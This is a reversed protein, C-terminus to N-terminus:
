PVQVEAAGSGRRLEKAFAEVLAKKEAASRPIDYSMLPLDALRPLGEPPPLDGRAPRRGFRGSLVRAVDASLVFDIFRRAADGRRTGRILGVGDPVASTGDSPYVIGIDAAATTLEAIANEFSLGVLYEGSAVSPIVQTSEQLTRGGLARAFAAVAAEGPHRRSLASTATKLITYASGSSAPDAYAIRGSLKPDLLDDWSDPARDEPILRRNYVIVMPLVSFGTWSGDSAKHEAPVADAEPSRYPELLDANAQLSEAGGGWLVDGAATGEEAETRIRRLLEGTGGQVLRVSLGSRERFETVVLRALEEPHSSYVVLDAEKRDEEATKGRACSFLLGGALLVACLVIATKKM